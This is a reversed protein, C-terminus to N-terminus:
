GSCGGVEVRGEGVGLASSLRKRDRGSYSSTPLFTHSWHATTPELPDSSLKWCPFSISRCSMTSLNLPAGTLPNSLCTPLKM